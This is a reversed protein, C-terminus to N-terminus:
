VREDVKKRKLIVVVLAIVTVGLVCVTVILGIQLPSFGNSDAGSFSSSSESVAYCPGGQCGAGCYASGTGCYGWQSKCNGPPCGSNSPPPPPPNSPPPPPNSPPNGGGGGGGSCPGGQCGAGCYASGTGCYGWQSKCQGPPCGSNSPPPNSPPPPPPPNSPPHSSGGGGLPNGQCNGSAVISWSASGSGANQGANGFLTDFAPQAIDFHADFGGPPSGCQDIVTIHITNGSKTDTLQICDGCSPSNWTAGSYAAVYPFLPSISQYGTRTILGNSGDSCAVTTLSDGASYEHYTCYSTSDVFPITLAIAFLFCIVALSM